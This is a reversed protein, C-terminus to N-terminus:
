SAVRLISASGPAPSPPRWPCARGRPWATRGATACACAISSKNTALNPERFTSTRGTGPGIPFIRGRARGNHDRSRPRPAEALRCAIHARRPGAPRSSGKRAPCSPPGARALDLGSSAPPPGERARHLRAGTRCVGPRGRGPRRDPCCGGDSPVAFGGPQPCEGRFRGRVTRRGCLCPWRSRRIRSRGASNRGRPGPTTSPFAVYVIWAGDGHYDVM